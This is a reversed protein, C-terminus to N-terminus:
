TSSHGCGAEQGSKVVWYKGFIDYEIMNIHRWVHAHIKRFHMKRMKKGENLGIEKYSESIIIYYNYIVDTQM